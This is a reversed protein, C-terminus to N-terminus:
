QGAKAPKIRPIANVCYEYQTALIDEVHEVKAWKLFRDRDLGQAEIQERIKDAQEQTITPAPAAGAARGDDDNAAALGLSLKLSYRELYTLTSGLSQIPNKSGSKDADASLETEETHGDRHMLICTVYIKDTQKSRFRYSLGYKSLIPDVHKAIAAMDEYKGTHGERNKLIPRIESKADAIANNFAKKAQNAEWREQLEMTKEIMEVTAGSALLREVMAGPDTRVPVPMTPGELRQINTM